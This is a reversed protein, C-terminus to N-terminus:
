NETPIALVCGTGFLINEYYVTSGDVEISYQRAIDGPQENYYITKSCSEPYKKYHMICPILDGHITEDMCTILDPMIEELIRQNSVALGSKSEVMHCKTSPQLFRETCQVEFGANTVVGPAKTANRYSIQELEIITIM